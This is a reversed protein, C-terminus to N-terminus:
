NPNCEAQKQRIPCFPAMHGPQKCYYCFQKGVLCERGHDRGCKLCKRARPSSSTHVQKGKGQLTKVKLQQGFKGFEKKQQWKAHREEQVKKLNDEVIYSKHVLTSYNTLEMHGINGRIEPRLGWEFQNIKWEEIPAYQAHPSFRALEEFKVVYEVVSMDGQQLHVFELENQRKASKPYYKDLFSVEFHEWNMHTGQTQLYTNASRWWYEARSKLLHAVFAVKQEEICPVVEFEKKIEDMWAQAESPNHSGQFTPPQLKLFDYFVRNANPPGDRQMAMQQVMNHTATAHKQIAEMVKEWPEAIYDEQVLNRRSGETM